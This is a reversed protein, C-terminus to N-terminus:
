YGRTLDVANIFSQGGEHRRIQAAVASAIADPDSMAANHPTIQVAPHTWLRSASPLPETEFVDLTAAKLTGDDLAALIDTEVQLGGRGANVLIPGGLRGDRALGAFLRADLLGRTDATLPLLVVLIDTRALFAPLEGEGAYTPIGDIERKTRSWGAVDFGMIRLKRASDGGLVGLGMIGVRVDRAAPQERDDEWVGRRQRDAYTWGKRLHMLCHMVVYESMRETLDQDVVRLVPVDPLNPDTALHDIGAGLSFVAELNPLNSLVGPRHKWTAAYRISAPDFPERASVTDRDPLLRRFRDLWSEEHWGTVALLLSNPRSTM